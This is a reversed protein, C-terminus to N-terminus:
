ILCKAVSRWCEVSLGTLKGSNDYMGFPPSIYVAARIENKLAPFEDKLESLNEAKLCASQHSFIVLSLLVTKILNSYIM